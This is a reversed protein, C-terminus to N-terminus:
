ANLDNFYISRINISNLCANLLVIKDYRCFLYYSERNYTMVCRKLHIVCDLTVEVKQIPASIVICRRLKKVFRAASPLEPEIRM